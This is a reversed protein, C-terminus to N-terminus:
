KQLSDFYISVPMGLRLTNESDEVIIRVEYVLATRLEPTEVTKPTFEASSSIFSVSGEIAKNPFSDSYIKAKMGTQIHGLESEPIYTRVWKPSLIALSFVTKQPSAIDGVELLKRNIVSNVPSKLTADEKQTYLLELALMSEQYLAKALAIDEKRAGAKLLELNKEQVELQAKAVHFQQMAQEYDSKSAGNKKYLEELRHYQSTAFIAQAKAAEVLAQAQTIEEPRAGNEVKELNAKAQESKAKLIAINDELRKIELKALTQGKTVSDGEEVYIAEIRGSDLFALEIEKYDVNGYLVYSNVSEKTFYYYAFASSLAIIFFLIIIKAKHQKM